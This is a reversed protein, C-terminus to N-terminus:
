GRFIITGDMDTRYISCGYLELRELTDSHPHGYANNAGVSIIAMDPHTAQLLDLSTAYKSGHHGAILLELDPLDTTKLLKREGKSSRDGTILIDCNGSQFLICVSSENDDTTSEGPFLTINGNELNIIEKERIWVTREGAADAIQERLGNTDHTDPLYIWEASISNMLDSVGSAHDADYHTLIIGDLRFIGQSLLFNATNDAALYTQESGCDVLYHRKGSQLLISQGQGVDIVSVRTEDLCPEIWSLALCVCLSIAICAATTGPNRRKLVFFVGLLLYSLILWCVIYISDTYVAALPFDSLFDVVTTVYRIPWAVIWAIIKGLPLWIVAAACSIMIGYFIFSIVWLTLLNTLLGIISVMGFYIACLPTTFVMASVTVSVCGTVWRIFKARLNNGKAKRKLKGLSLIYAKLQNGFLLIGLTCGASLQLSVSTISIPNVMLILLVSFSLATLPDEERDFFLVLIMLAQMTCARVISPTFGAIAAFILLLPFGLIVNFLRRDGFFLYVLGYLISVHLGSVAVVHRIGTVQFGRDQEYSLDTSDGLLLAKAFGATDASFASTICSLIKQRWIAPYDWLRLPQSGFSIEGEQYVLLFIGNGQHYTSDQEGGFGTYRFRFEGTVTDGPKLSHDENIYCRVQYNKGELEVRGDFVQGYQPQHSYDGAAITVVATQQDYDKPTSLYLSDFGYTWFFGVMCGILIVATIRAPKGKLFWIFFGSFLCLLAMLLLWIGSLCYVGLACALTFGISFLMLRRM